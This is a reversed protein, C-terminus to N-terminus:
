HKIRVVPKGQFSERVLTVKRQIWDDTEDSGLAAAISTANTKNLILKRAHGSGVAKDLTIVLVEDSEGKTNVVTEPGVHTILIKYEDAEMESGKLFQSPFVQHINPMPKV